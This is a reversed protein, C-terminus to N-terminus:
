YAGSGLELGCGLCDRFNEDFNTGTGIGGVKIEELGLRVRMMRNM